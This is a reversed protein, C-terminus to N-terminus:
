DQQLLKVFSPLLRKTGDNVIFTKLIGKDEYYKLLPLTLADYEVLRKRVVEEKDDPRQVLSDVAGCQDCVGEVKPLLPPMDLKGDASKIHALNYNMGCNSCVRRSSIKKIIIDEDQHLNVVLDLKIKDSIQDLKQAQILTRPFGDLLFGKKSSGTISLIRNVLLDIVLEDPVLQGKSMYDNMQKGLETKNKVEERIIDGAAIHPVQLIESVRSCFSGKGAGPRGVLLVGKTYVNESYSVINTSFCRYAKISSLKNSLISSSIKKM